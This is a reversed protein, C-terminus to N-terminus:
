LFCDSFIFFSLFAMPFSLFGVLFCYFAYPFLLFVLCYKLFGSSFWVSFRQVEKRGEQDRGEKRGERGPGRERRTGEKRIFM